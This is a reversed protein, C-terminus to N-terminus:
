IARRCSLLLRSDGLREALAEASQGLQRAGSNLLQVSEQISLVPLRVTTHDLDQRRTTIITYLRGTTPLYAWLAVDEPLNDLIVLCPLNRANLGHWLQVVQEAEEAKTDM